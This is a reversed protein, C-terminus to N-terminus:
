FPQDIDSIVKELKNLYALCNEIDHAAHDIKRKSKPNHQNFTACNSCKNLEKNTCTKSEHNESCFKCIFNSKTCKKDVHGFSCCKWCETFNFYEYIRCRQYGTYINKNIMLKAYINSKVEIIINKLNSKRSIYTHLVNLEQKQIQNRNCYM